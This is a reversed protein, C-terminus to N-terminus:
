GPNLQRLVCGHRESVVNTAPMVLILKVVKIVKSYFEKEASSLSKLYTVVSQLDTLSQEKSTCLVTLQTQLSDRSSFDAGYFEVVDKIAKSVQSSQVATVITQNQLM